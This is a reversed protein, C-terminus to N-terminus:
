FGKRVGFKSKPLRYASNCFENTSYTFDNNSNVIWNRIKVLKNKNSNIRNKQEIIKRRKNFSYPINLNNFYNLASDLQAIAENLEKVCNGRLADYNISLKAM